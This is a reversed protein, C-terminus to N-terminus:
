RDGDQVVKCIMRNEVDASEQFISDPERTTRKGSCLLEERQGPSDRLLIHHQYCVVAEIM